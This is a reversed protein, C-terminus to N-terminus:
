WKIENQGISEKGVIGFVFSYLYKTYGLQQGLLLCVMKLDLCVIWKHQENIAFRSYNCQRVPKGPIPVHLENCHLILRRASPLDPYKMTAKNRANFGNAAILLMIDWNEGFWLYLM